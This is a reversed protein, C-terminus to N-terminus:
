SRSVLWVGLSITVIGIARQLTMAEGLYWGILASLAFGMGVLPYAKSVEWKALVVLWLLAGAFYLSFGLVLHPNTLAALAIRGIGPPELSALQSLATAGRRLAFQALVSLLVSAVVVILTPM